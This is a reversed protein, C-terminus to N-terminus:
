DSQTYRGIGFDGPQVHVLMVLAGVLDVPPVSHFLELDDNTGRSQVIDFVFQGGKIDVTHGARFYAAKSPLAPMRFHVPGGYVLHIKHRFYAKFNYDVIGHRFAHNLSDHFGCTRAVHAVPFNKYSRHFVSPAYTCAFFAIRCKLM